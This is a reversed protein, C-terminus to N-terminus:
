LGIKFRGVEKTQNAQIQSQKKVLEAVTGVFIGKGGGWTAKNHFSIVSLFVAIQACFVFSSM